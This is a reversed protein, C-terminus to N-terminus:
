VGRNIQEWDFVSLSNIILLSSVILWAQLYLGHNHGQRFIACYGWVLLAALGGGIWGGFAVGVAKFIAADFGYVGVYSHLSFGGGVLICLALIGFAKKWFAFASYNNSVPSDQGNVDYM